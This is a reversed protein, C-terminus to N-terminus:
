VSYYLALSFYFTSTDPYIARMFLDKDFFHDIINFNFSYSCALGPESRNFAILVIGSQRWLAFLSKLSDPYDEGSMREGSRQRKIRVDRSVIRSDV